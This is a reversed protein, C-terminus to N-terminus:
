VSISLKLNGDSSDGLSESGSNPGIGDAMKDRNQGGTM